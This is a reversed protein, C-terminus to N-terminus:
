KGAIWNLKEENKETVLKKEFNEKKRRTEVFSFKRSRIEELNKMETALRVM